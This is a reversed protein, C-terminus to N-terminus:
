AVDGSAYCNGQSIGLIELRNFLLSSAKVEFVNSSVTGHMNYGTVLDTVVLAVADLKWASVKKVRM